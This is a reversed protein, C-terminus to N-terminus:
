LRPLSKWLALPEWKLSNGQAYRPGSEPEIPAHAKEAAPVFHKAMDWCFLVVGEGGRCLLGLWFVNVLIIELRMKSMRDLIVTSHLGRQPPHVVLTFPSQHTPHLNPEPIPGCLSITVQIPTTACPPAATSVGNRGKKWRLRM